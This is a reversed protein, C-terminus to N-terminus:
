DTTRWATMILTGDTALGEAEITHGVLPRLAPDVFAPGGRRRLTFTQGETTTLVVDTRESKSGPSVRGREVKGRVKVTRADM